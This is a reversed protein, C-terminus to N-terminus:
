ERGASSSKRSAARRTKRKMSSSRSGAPAAVSASPSSSEPQLVLKSRRRQPEEDSSFSHRLLPHEPQDHMVASSYDPPSSSSCGAAADSLQLCRLQSRLDEMVCAQRQLLTFSLQQLDRYLAASAALLLLCLCSLGLHLAGASELLGAQLMARELVATGLLSGFSWLRAARTREAATLGYLLLSLGCYFFLSSLSLLESLLSLDLSLLRELRGALETLTSQLQQETRVAQAEMRSLAAGVRQLGSEEEARLTSVEQRVGAVATQMQQQSSLLSSQSSLLAVLQQRSSSFAEGQEASLASLASFATTFSSAIDSSLLSLAARSEQQATLLSAQLSLLSAVAATAASRQEERLKAVDQRGDDIARLQEAQRRLLRVQGARVEQQGAHVEQGVAHMGSLLEAAQQEQRQLVQGFSVARLREEEWRRSAEEGRGREEQALQQLSVSTNHYAAQMQERLEETMVSADLRFSRLQAATSIAAAFLSAVADVTAEQAHLRMVHLCVNDVHLSFATFTSYAVPDHGIAAACDSVDDEAECRHYPLQARALHCNSLAIAIRMKDEDHLQACLAHLASVSAAACAPHSLSSSSFRSLASLQEQGLAAAQSLLPSTLSFLASPLSSLAELEHTLLPAPSPSSAAPPASTAPQSSTFLKTLFGGTPHLLSLLLLLSLLMAVRLAMPSHHLRCLSSTCRHLLLLPRTLSSGSNSDSIIPSSDSGRSSAILAPCCCCGAPLRTLKTLAPACLPADLTSYRSTTPQLKSHRTARWPAGVSGSQEEVGRMGVDLRDDARESSEELM